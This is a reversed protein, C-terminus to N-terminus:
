PAVNAIIEANITVYISVDDARTAAIPKTCRMIADTSSM